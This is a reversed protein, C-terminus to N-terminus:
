SHGARPHLRSYLTEAVRQPLGGRSALEDVSLARMAEVSGLAKLLHLKRKEGIGPVDDLVSRTMRKGRLKGHFTNAFRHAEDRVRQILHLAPSTEALRIPDKRGPLYIEEFQKALGFIPVEVGLRDLAAVASGLQGKGGDILVLDPMSWRGGPDAGEAVHKFRRKVVEHMSAFDDIGEVSKIKFRRYEAKAPVGGEFVVMSAVTDSGQVHAIDYGEIRHPVESLGLADALERLAKQPGKEIAAWRRLREQELAQQANYAVMELLKLKDGRQPVLLAVKSGRKEALFAALVEQDPVSEPLLIEKPVRAGAATGDYYQALFAGLVEAPESDARELTFARRGIVKGERVEFLQICASLEDCAIAVVDQDTERNAEVKQEELLSTIAAIADRAKAAREFDLAESAEAMQAKLDRLLDKHRGELFSIVKNVMERYEPVSVMGQCPGLCRGIAYNLCPRDRFQPTPRQRLPFLQKILRLTAYMAGADPYPGFYRAGDNLRKRTVVLRPYPENLTLKLWPYTKDDKLLINFYPQHRKILTNELVLAEVETTTSITEFHDIVRVLARVKPSHGKDERFYSRVRSRLNVAKGVYLILGAADKMLYVGPNTPLHSLLEQIRDSLQM